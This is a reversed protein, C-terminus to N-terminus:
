DNPIAILQKLSKAVFFPKVQIKQILYEKKISVVEGIPLDPPFIQDTGSTVILDGINVPKNEMLYKFNCLKNNNGTLLGELKNKQIYAGVGGTPSTILRIKASIPSIPEVIKGVLDGDPNIVVMGKKMGHSSGKNVMVSNFPFNQDVAIVSLPIFKIDKKKVQNTFGQKNLQKKLQYNEFRLKTNKRKIKIYKEHSRKLFVYHKMQNATFDITKQIGIQLPSFITSVINQFLSKKNKLLVTTSILLLNLFLVAALVFIKRETPLEDRYM